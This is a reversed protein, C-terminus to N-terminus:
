QTPLRCPNICMGGQGIFMCYSNPLLTCDSEHACGWFSADVMACSPTGQVSMCTYGSPCGIAADGGGDGLLDCLPTSPSCSSPPVFDAPGELCRPVATNVVAVLLGSIMDYYEDALGDTGKWSLVDYGGCVSVSLGRARGRTPYHDFYAGHAEPGAPGGGGNRVQRRPGLDPQREVLRGLDQVAETDRGAM